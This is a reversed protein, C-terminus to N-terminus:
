NDYALIFQDEYCRRLANNQSTAFPLYPLRLVKSRRANGQSVNIDLIWSAEVGRAARCGTLVDTLEDGVM